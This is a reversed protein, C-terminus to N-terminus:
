SRVLWENVRYNDGSMHYGALKAEIDAKAELLKKRKKADAKSKHLSETVWWDEDEGYVHEEVAWVYLANPDRWGGSVGPSYNIDPLSDTPMAMWGSQKVADPDFRPEGPTSTIDTM